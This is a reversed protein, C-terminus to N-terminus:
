KTKIGLESLQMRSVKAPAQTLLCSGSQTKPFAIVDRISESGTLIMAIRDIGFAIGGHPPCGYDLADLLFGFKSNATEHNINLLEFVAFQVDKQHIRISGGGIEHGNLVLDYARAKLKTPEGKLDELTTELSPSTFPHHAAQLQGDDGEEFMPWDVIWVLQWGEQILNMDHGLKVRLAGMSENVMNKKGAGFFIVDGDEAELSSVINLAATEGIFKLIPSQLGQVGKAKENVKIYALGKAGYIGVFKGYEDLAKRSLSCGNPLKLAVVRSQEDNAPQRFVEFDVDKVLEHIDVLELPIRLDPKDSGFRHMAEDYTMRQIPTPIDEGKLTKFVEGMLGEIMTQISKEDQFTTEIDLQTFEPQRDARLDEDRFCKVIQYYKDLGAMMLLQKFLQPSQPLAYFADDHMRSPVLFDRAGEPTAKTLMPTEIDLFGAKDLYNRIIQILRHRLVLKEQMSERRLDIYRHKLRTEEGVAQKEDPLFPPTKAQNLVSLETGLVEIAGSKMNPNVMGDPRHRVRGKVAIVFEHRLTEAISFVDKNEPEYVVQVLGERDRVDLFIVGGHDRRNHVWGCVSVDSDILEETVEGCYHTRM